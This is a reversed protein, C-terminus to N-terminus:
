SIARKVAAPLTNDYLQRGPRGPPREGCPPLFTRVGCPVTSPLVWAPHGSPFPGCFLLGGPRGVPYPHFPAHLLGGADSTVAAALCGGGPALGLLPSVRKPPRPAARGTRAGPLSSSAAPLRRGLCIVAWSLIRSIPRGPHWAAHEKAPVGSEPFRLLVSGDVGM